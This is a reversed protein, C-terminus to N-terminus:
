TTCCRCGWTCFITVSRRGIGYREISVRCGVARVVAWLIARAFTKECLLPNLLMALSSRSCYGMSCGMGLTRKNLLVHLPRM